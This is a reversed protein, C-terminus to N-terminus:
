GVVAALVVVMLTTSACFGLAAQIWGQGLQRSTPVLPRSASSLSLMDFSAPSAFLMAM